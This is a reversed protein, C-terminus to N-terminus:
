NDDIIKIDPDNDAREHSRCLKDHIHVKIEDKKNDASGCHPCSGITKLPRYCFACYVMDAM